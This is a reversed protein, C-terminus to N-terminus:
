KKSKEIIQNIIKKYTEENEQFDDGLEKKFISYLEDESLYKKEKLVKKEESQITFNNKELKEFKELLHKKNEEKEIQLQNKNEERHNNIAKDMEKQMKNM